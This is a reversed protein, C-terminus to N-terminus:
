FFLGQVFNVIIFSSFALVLGIISATLIETAKSRQNENGPSTIMMVGAVVILLLAVSGIVSILLNIIRILINEVPSYSGETITSQDQGEADLIEGVNFTEETARKDFAGSEAAYATHTYITSIM